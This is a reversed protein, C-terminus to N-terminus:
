RRINIAIGLGQPVVFPSLDFSGGAATKGAPTAGAQPRRMKFVTAAAVYGIGIGLPYDGAWHVGNNLMAFMLLGLASYGAPMIWAVEPYNYHLIMLTSTVTAVHGSPFADHKSVKSLYNRVGPAPNWAGGETTAQSPSERGFLYKSTIVFMGTLAMSEMLQSATNLARNDSRVAGAVALGGMISLSTLGDGIFYFCSNLDSPLRLDADIGAIRTTAVRRSRSNDEDKGILHIREAFHQSANILKQDYYILVGSLALIGAYTQWHETVSANEFYAPVDEVLNPVIDWVKPTFTYVPAEQAIGQTAVLVTFFLVWCKRKTAIFPRM